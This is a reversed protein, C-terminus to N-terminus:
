ALGGNSDSIYLEWKFNRSSRGFLFKQRRQRHSGREGVAGERMQVWIPVHRQLPKVPDQVLGRAAKAHEAPTNLAGCQAHLDLLQMQGSLFLLALHGENVM